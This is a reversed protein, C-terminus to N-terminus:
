KYLKNCTEANNPPDTFSFNVGLLETIFVALAKTSLSNDWMYMHYYMVDDCTQALSTM